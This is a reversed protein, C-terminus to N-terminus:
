LRYYIEVVGAPRVFIIKEVFSRLMANKLSESSQSSELIEMCESVKNKLIEAPSKDPVTTKIQRKLNDISSQIKEKREKYEALTDIGAEYAERIRQLKKEERAIASEITQNRNDDSQSTIKIDNSNKKSPYM